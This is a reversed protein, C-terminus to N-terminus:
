NSILPPPAPSIFVSMLATFREAAVYLQRREAPSKVGGVGGLLEYSVASTLSPPENPGM